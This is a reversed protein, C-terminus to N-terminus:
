CSCAFIDPTFALNLPNQFVLFIDAVRKQLLSERDIADSMDSYMNFVEVVIWATEEDIHVTITNRDRKYGLPLSQILGSITRKEIPIAGKM